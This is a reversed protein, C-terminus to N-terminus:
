VARDLADGLGAALTAVHPRRIIGDHSGSIAITSVIGDLLPTWAQAAATRDHDENATYAVLTPGSFTTAPHYARGFQMSLDSFVRYQRVGHHVIGASALRFAHRMHSAWYHPDGRIDFRTSSMNPPPPDILALLTVREGVNAPSPM